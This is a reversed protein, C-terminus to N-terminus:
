RLEVPVSWINRKCVGDGYRLPDRRLVVVRNTNTGRTNNGVGWLNSTKTFNQLNIMVKEPTLPLNTTAHIVEEELNLTANRVEGVEFAIRGGPRLVRALETFTDQLWNRWSTPNAHSDIQVADTDIDAFWVRHLDVGM